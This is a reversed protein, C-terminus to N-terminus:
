FGIYFMKEISTEISITIIAKSDNVDRVVVKNANTKIHENSFGVFIDVEIFTLIMFSNM